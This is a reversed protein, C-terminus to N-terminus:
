KKISLRSTRIWKIMSIVKTSRGQTMGCAAYKALEDPKVLNLVFVPSSSSSAGELLVEENVLGGFRPLTLM